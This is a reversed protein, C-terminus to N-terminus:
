SDTADDPQLARIREMILESAAQQADRDKEKGAFASFDIPKGYRVRVTHRMLFSKLVSDSYRTGSINCPIVAAGSRLALMGIGAKGDLDEDPKEIMGQPFVGLCGGAKLKRLCAATASFRPREREVPICGVAAQFWHIFPVEFYTKEVLFGPLRYSCTAYILLPDIGSTHNVALIVAGRRPLTCPGVRQLRCWFKCYFTVLKWAVSIMPHCTDSRRYARWALWATISFGGGAAGLLYPIYRDLNPINPLGIAGTALVMAGMTCMDAVGFVRGRKADPVFRQITAMITVLLGAGHAGIMVLCLGTPISGLRFVIAADLALMWFAGGALSGVVAIAIPMAPGLITMVAAGGALGIGILGRYLGADQVDGGFIDRVIAPVISIVVGAAAWFVTGLLIMQLVRRHTRVYRFGDRLPLWVGVLKPRRVARSRSMAIFSILLASLVFTLADVRYNWIKGFQVVLIGGLVASVIAGITGLASILANARVFQDDRILTPLMAQRCPSFFAALMGVVALPLVISYDGFGLDVLWPVIFALNIMVTARLLDSIIMTAKRSFRDAWWGALPGLIVFPLFFGFQILAQVRTADPRDLGGREVLLAMESLHDGIASVGYAVWLFVFNRNQVLWKPLQAQSMKPQTPNVSGSKM